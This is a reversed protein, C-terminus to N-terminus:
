KAWKPCTAWCIYQWRDTPTDCYDDLFERDIQEGNLIDWDDQTYNGAIFPIKEM